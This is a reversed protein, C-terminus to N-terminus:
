QKLNGCRNGCIVQSLQLASAAKEINELGRPATSRCQGSIGSIGINQANIIGMTICIFSKAVLHLGTLLFSRVCDSAVSKQGFGSLYGELFRSTTSIAIIM